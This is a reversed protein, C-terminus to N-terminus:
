LIGSSRAPVPQVNDLTRLGLVLDVLPEAALQLFLVNHAALFQHLRVCLSVSDAKVIDVSRLILLFDEAFVSEMVPIGTKSGNAMTSQFLSLNDVPHVLLVLLIMNQRNRIFVNHFGQSISILRNLLLMVGLASDHDLSEIIHCHMETLAAARNRSILNHAKDCSASANGNVARVAHIHQMKRLHLTGPQDLRLPLGTDCLLRKSFVIRVDLNETVITGSKQHINGAYKRLRIDINGSDM